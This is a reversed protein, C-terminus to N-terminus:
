QNKPIKEFISKVEKYKENVIVVLNEQEKHVTDIWKKYAELAEDSVNKNEMTKIILKENQNSLSHTARLTYTITTKQVVLLKLLIERTNLKEKVSKDFKEKVEIGGDKITQIWRNLTEKAEPSNFDTKELVKKYIEEAKGPIKSASGLVLELTEKQLELM